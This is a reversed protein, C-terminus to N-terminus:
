TTFDHTFEDFAVFDGHYSLLIFVSYGYIKHIRKGEKRRPCFSNRGCKWLVAYFRSEFKSESRHYMHIMYTYMIYFEM